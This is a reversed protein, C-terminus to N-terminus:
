LCFKRIIFNQVTSLASLLSFGLFLGLGGGVASVFDNFGVKLSTTTVISKKKVNLEIITENGEPRQEKPFGQVNQDKAFKM